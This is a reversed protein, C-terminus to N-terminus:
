LDGGVRRGEPDGAEPSDRVAGLHEVHHRWPIRGIEVLSVTMEWKCFLGGGWVGRSKGVTISM